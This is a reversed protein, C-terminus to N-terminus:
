VSGSSCAPWTSGLNRSPSATREGPLLLRPLRNRQAVFLGAVRAGSRSRAGGAGSGTRPVRSALVRRAVCRRDLVRGRDPTGIPYGSVPSTTFVGAGLLGVGWIGVLVAGARAVLRSRWLGTAFLITLTGCVLFSTTQAWGNEGLALSSVPHRLFEYGDSKAIGQILFALVFLPGAVLGCYLLRRTGAEWPGDHARSMLPRRARRSRRGPSPAGRPRHRRPRPRAPGPRAQRRPRRGAHAGRRDARWRDRVRHGDARKLLRKTSEGIPPRATLIRHQRRCSPSRSPSGPSAGPEAGMRSRAGRPDRRQDARGRRADARDDYKWRPWRSCCTSLRSRPRDTWKPKVGAGRVLGARVDKTSTSM